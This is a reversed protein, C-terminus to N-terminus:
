KPLRKYSRGAAQMFSRVQEEGYEEFLEPLSLGSWAKEWTRVTRESVGYAESVAKYRSRDALLGSSCWRLYRIAPEQAYRLVPRPKKGRKDGSAAPLFAPFEVGMCLFDFGALLFRQMESPVPQGSSLADRIARQLAAIDDPHLFDPNPRRTAETVVWGNETLAATVSDPPYLVDLFRALPPRTTSM